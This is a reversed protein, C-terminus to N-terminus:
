KRSYKMREELLLKDAERFENTNQPFDQERILINELVFVDRTAYKEIRIRDMKDDGDFNQYLRVGREDRVLIEESGNNLRTYEKKYMFNLVSGTSTSHSHLNQKNITYNNCSRLSAGFLCGVGVVSTIVAGLSAIGKLLDKHVNDFVSLKM